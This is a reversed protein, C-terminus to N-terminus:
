PLRADCRNAPLPGHGLDVFFCKTSLTPLGQGVPPTPATRRRRRKRRALRELKRAHVEDYCRQHEDKLQLSLEADLLTNM